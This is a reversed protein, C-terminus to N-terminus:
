GAVGEGPRSLAQEKGRKLKPLAVERAKTWDVYEASDHHQWFAREEAETKCKPKRKM